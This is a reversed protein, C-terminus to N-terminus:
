ASVTVVLRENGRRMSTERSPVESVSARSQLCALLSGMRHLGSPRPRHGCQLKWRDASSVGQWSAGGRGIVRLQLAALQDETPEAEPLLVRGVLEQHNKSLCDFRDPTLETVETAETQDLVTSLKVAYRMNFSPAHPSAVADAGSSGPEQSQLSDAGSMRVKQRSWRWILGLQVAEM